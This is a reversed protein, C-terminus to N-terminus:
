SRNVFWQAVIGLGFFASYVCFGGSSEWLGIQPVPFRSYVFRGSCPVAAYVSRVVPSSKELM